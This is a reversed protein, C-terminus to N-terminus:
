HCQFHVWDKEPTEIQAFLRLLNVVTTTLTIGYLEQVRAIAWKDWLAIVEKRSRTADLIDAPRGNDAFDSLDSLDTVMVREYDMGLVDRMFQTGTKKFDNIKDQTIHLVRTM